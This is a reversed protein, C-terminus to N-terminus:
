RIPMRLNYLLHTNLYYTQYIEDMLSKVVGSADTGPIDCHLVFIGLLVMEAADVVLLSALTLDPRIGLGMFLDNGNFTPLVM